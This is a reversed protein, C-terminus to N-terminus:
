MPQTKTFVTSNTPTNFPPNAVVVNHQKHFISYEDIYLLQAVFFWLNEQLRSIISTM